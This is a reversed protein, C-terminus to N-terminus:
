AKARGVKRHEQTLARVRCFHACMYKHAWKVQVSFVGSGRVSRLNGWAAVPSAM